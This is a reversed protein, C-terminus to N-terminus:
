RPAQPARVSLQRYFASTGEIMRQKSFRESALQMAARRMELRDPRDAVLGIAAALAAPDNFPVVYGTTGEVVQDQWGGSPTRIAIAGCCMAEAVVLGFGELRSPLLVIDAAWYCDRLTDRDVFGLFQFLHKDRGDRLVNNVIAQRQEGGGPFLCVIKLDPRADCLARVAAATIDHGKSFNMRGPLVCVLECAKLGFHARAARREEESPQRYFDTEVGLVQEHIRAVPIGCDRRFFDAIDRSLAIYADSRFLTTVVRYALRQRRSRGGRMSAADNGQLSPHYNTAVPLRALRGLLTAIPLMSLGQPSIVTVRRERILLRIRGLHLPAPRVPDLGDLVLWEEVARAIAERRPETGPPAQVAGSVIVVHDGVARLGSALTELYSAVGDFCDVRKLLLLIVAYSQTPGIRISM